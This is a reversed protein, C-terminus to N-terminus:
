TLGGKLAVIVERLLAADFGADLRIVVGEVEISLSVEPTQPTPIVRAFKPSEARRSRKMWYYATSERVGLRQAVVKVPEGSARVTEILREREKANYRKGM